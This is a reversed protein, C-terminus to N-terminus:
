VHKVRLRSYIELIDFYQSATLANAKAMAIRVGDRKHEDDANFLANIYFQKM